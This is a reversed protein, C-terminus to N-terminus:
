TNMFPHIDKTKINFLNNNIFPEISVKMTRSLPDVNRVFLVSKRTVIEFAKYVSFTKTKTRKVMLSQKKITKKTVKNREQFIWM